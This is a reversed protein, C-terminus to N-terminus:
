MNAMEKVKIEIDITLKVVEEKKKNVSRCIANSEMILKHSHTTQAKEALKDAPKQLTKVNQEL